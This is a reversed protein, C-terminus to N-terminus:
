GSDEELYHKAAEKLVKLAKTIQNEVTKPSIDLQAAIEKLPIGELRRMVFILRCREPLQDLATQLANELDEAELNQQANSQDKSIDNLVTEDVTPKKAKILNLSRNIVARKLYARVSSEIKLAERKKWIQLFVEQTVDKASSSDKLINIATGLLLKYYRDFLQRFAKRDGEKIGAILSHDEPLQESM